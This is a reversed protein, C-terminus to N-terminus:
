EDCSYKDLQQNARQLLSAPADPFRNKLETLTVCAEEIKSVRGLSMGLKLLNDAAKAGKPAAKFAEAFIVTAKEFEGRVYYTEGLWYRANHVLDNDKYKEIFAKFATEAKEYDKEQVYSFAQDYAETVSGSTLVNEASKTVESSAGDAPMSPTAAETKVAGAGGVSVSATASTASQVAQQQQNQAQEQKQLLAGLRSELLMNKQTLQRTDFQLREIDGTLARIQQEMESLRTEFAAVVANSDASGQANRAKADELTAAFDPNQQYIYRNLTQMQNDLQNVRNMLTETETNGIQAAVPSSLSLVIALGSVFAFYKSKVM